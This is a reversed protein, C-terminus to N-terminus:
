CVALMLVLNCLGLQSQGYLFGTCNDNGNVKIVQTIRFLRM